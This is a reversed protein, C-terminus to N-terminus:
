LPDDNKSTRRLGLKIFLFHVSYEFIESMSITSFQAFVNKSYPSNEFCDIYFKKYESIQPIWTKGWPKNKSNFHRLVPKGKSRGLMFTMLNFKSPMEQWNNEFSLNLADQDLFPLNRNSNQAQVIIETAKRLSGNELTKPWDFLIVGANFYRSQPQLGIKRPHDSVLRMLGPLSVYDEVAAIPKNRMNFGFLENLPALPLIDCDLYLLRQYTKPIIGDLMLRLLTATSYRGAKIQKLAANPEVVNINVRIKHQDIFTQFTKLEAEVVDHTILFFDAIEAVQQKQCFRFTAAAMPLWAANCCLVVAFKKSDERKTM